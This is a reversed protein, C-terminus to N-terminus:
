VSVFGSKKLPVATSVSTAAVRGAPVFEHVGSTAHGQGWPPLERCRCHRLTNGSGRPRRPARRGSSATRAKQRSGRPTNRPGHSSPCAPPACGPARTKLHKCRHCPRSLERRSPEPRSDEPRQALPPTCPCTSRAVLLNVWSATKPCGVVGLTDEGALQPESASGEANDPSAGPTLLQLFGSRPHPPPEAGHSPGTTPRAAHTHIATFRTRRMGSALPGQARSGCLGRGVGAGAHV